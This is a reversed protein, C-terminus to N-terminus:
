APDNPGDTEGMLGLRDRVQPPRPTFAIFAACLGAWLAYSVGVIVALPLGGLGFILLITESAGLAQATDGAELWGQAATYVALIAQLAAALLGGYLMFRWVVGLRSRPRGTAERERAVAWLGLPSAILGIALTLLRWDMELSPAWNHPPWIALTVILPPWLAGVLAALAPAGTAKRWKVPRQGPLDALTDLRAM